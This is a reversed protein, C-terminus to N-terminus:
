IAEFHTYITNFGTPALTTSTTTTTTPIPANPDCDLTIYGGNGGNTGQITLVTFDTATTIVFRGSGSLGPTPPMDTIIQNGSTHAYCVTSAAVSPVEENTTITFNDGFDLISIIIGINNVPNSFTLTYTFNPTFIQNGLFVLHFPATWLGTCPNYFGANPLAYSLIGGSWATNTVTNGFYTFNGGLVPLTQGCEPFLPAFSVNNCEGTSSEFVTTQSWGLNDTVETITYPYTLGVKFLSSDSTRVLYIEQNFTIIYFGLISASPNLPISALSIDVELLGGPYSYQTLYFVNVNLIIRSAVVILKSDTTLIM